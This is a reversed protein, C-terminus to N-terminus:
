SVRVYPTTHDIRQGNTQCRYAAQRRQIKNHRVIKIKHDQGCGCKYAYIKRKVEMQHHTRPTEGLSAMIAKFYSGHDTYGMTKIQVIHALEHVFTSRLNEPYRSFLCISFDVKRIALTAKNWEVRGAARKLRSNTVFPINEIKVTPYKEALVTIFERKLEQIKQTLAYTM